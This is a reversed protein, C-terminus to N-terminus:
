CGMEGSMVNFDGAVDGKENEAYYTDSSPGDSGGKTMFAHVDDIFM